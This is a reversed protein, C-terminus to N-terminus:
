IPAGGNATAFDENSVVGDGTAMATNTVSGALVDDATVAYTATCTTSIAPALSAVPCSVSGLIDVKDDSVALTTVTVNGTNTVLYDYSIIDGAITFPDGGTISKDLTLELVDELVFDQTAGEAVANAIVTSAGFFLLSEDAAPDDPECVMAATYTGPYIFGTNYTYDDVQTSENFVATVQATIDPRRDVAVPCEVLPEASDECIDDPNVEGEYVYVWCGLAPTAPNVKETRLDTVTGHIFSSALETDLIRLTPRLKYDFDERLEKNPQRLTISKRLDFDITFDIWGTAEITFSRNLKLNSETCSSCDVLYDGGGTEIIHTNLPDIVLRIWSYDAADLPVEGLLMTKGGVLSKLEIDRWPDGADNVVDVVIDASGDSPHVIVQTFRVWVESIDEDFVPADTINLVIGSGSSSGGGGGCGALGLTLVFIMFSCFRFFQNRNKM